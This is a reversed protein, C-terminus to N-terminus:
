RVGSADFDITRTIGITELLRRDHTAIVFTGEYDALARELQEIAALDLHNTPEDLLLLNTRRAALVALAARTREGPSLETAPRQVDDAGLEFKALLSRADTGTSGTTREMMGLLDERPRLLDREQALLGPVVSPGLTRTGESMPLDGAIAGLLTSKGTGNPGVLAIRETRVIDLNIPGLRFSGRTITADLLRVVLDSGRSAPALDMQLVWRDRPADPVEIREIQRELKAAGAAHRQAGSIKAFRVFKDKEDSRKVRGVAAASEQRVQHARRQLRDRAAEATDHAGQAQRRRRERDAVYESWSGVFESARRTFPDLELFRDVCADLFARDHSVVVIGGAFGRVMSELRELAEADLNNTPEDLLLVDFRALEIAALAARTRQGGSLQDVRVDLSRFGLGAAVTAARVGFDHGGLRDFLELTETFRQISGLDETMCRTARHLADTAEGVGTASALFSRLTGHSEGGPEQDLLGVTMTAPSRRVTGADPRDQGALIRLLSSKGVGNPGLLGVRSRPAVLVSVDDLM